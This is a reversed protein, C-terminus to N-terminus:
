FIIVITELMRRLDIIQSHLQGLLVDPEAAEGMLTTTIQHEFSSLADVAAPLVQQLRAVWQENVDM